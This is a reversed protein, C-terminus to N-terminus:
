QGRMNQIKRRVAEARPDNPNSRLWQEAQQIRQDGSQQQRQVEPAFSSTDVTSEYQDAAAQGAQRSTLGQRLFRKKIRAMDKLAQSKAQIQQFTDTESPLFKEFRAFEAETIAAGSIQKAAESFVTNTKALFRQFDQSAQGTVRNAIVNLRGSVPGLQKTIKSADNELDELLAVGQDISRIEQRNKVREKGAASAEAELEKQRLKFEPSNERRVKEALAQFSSAQGAKPLPARFSSSIDGQPVSTQMQGFSAQAEQERAEIEQAQDRTIGEFISRERETIPTISGIEATPDIPGGTFEDLESETPQVGLKAFELKLKARDSKQKESKDKLKDFAQQRLQAIQGVGQLGQVLSEQFRALEPKAALAQRRKEQESLDVFAM